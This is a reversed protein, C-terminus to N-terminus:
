TDPLNTIAKKEIKAIHFNFYSCNFRKMEEHINEHSEEPPPIQQQILRPFIRNLDGDASHSYNPLTRVLM